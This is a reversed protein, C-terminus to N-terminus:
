PKWEGEAPASAPKDTGGKIAKRVTVALGVLGQPMYIVTFILIGGYIILRYAQLARLAESMGTLMFSGVIAGAITRNGGIVSMCLFTVSDDFTFNDPSAVGSFVGYLVGAMGAYIASLIFAATKYRSVRVGMAEAAVEDERIAAFTRGVKSHALRYAIYTGLLVVSFILYYFQSESSCQWTLFKPLPIGTLGAAGRTVPTWNLLVLRVIEGFGVTALVLYPGSLRMAPIAIIAGCAATVVLAALAAAWFPINLNIALLGAVYTGVAFFGAQGMSVQGTYGSLLNLGITILTYIGALNIVHLYYNNSVLVPLVLLAAGAALLIIKRRMVRKIM